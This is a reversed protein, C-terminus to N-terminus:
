RKKAGRVLHNMSHRDRGHRKFSEVLVLRAGQALDISKDFRVFLIMKAMVALASVASFDHWEIRTKNALVLIETSAIGVTTEAQKSTSYIRCFDYLM